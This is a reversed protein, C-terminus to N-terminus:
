VSVSCVISRAVIWGRTRGVKWPAAVKYPVTADDQAVLAGIDKGLNSTMGVLWNTGDYWLAIYNADIKQYAPRHNVEESLLAYQGFFEKRSHLNDSLLAIQAAAQTKEMRAEEDFAKAAHEDEPTISCRVSVPVWGNHALNCIKWGSCQWPVTGDGDVHFHGFAQGVESAIGAWWTGGEKDETYWIMKAPDQAMYFAFRGNVLKPYLVYAGLYRRPRFITTQSVLFCESGCLKARARWQVSVARAQRLAVGVFSFVHVWLDEPLNSFVHSQKAFCPM